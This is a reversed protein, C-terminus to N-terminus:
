MVPQPFCFMVPRRFGRAMQVVMAEQQNLSAVLMLSEEPPLAVLASHLLSLDSQRLRGGARLHAAVEPVLSPNAALVRHVAHM